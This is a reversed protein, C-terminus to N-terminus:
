WAFPVVVQLNAVPPLSRRLGAVPNGAGNPGLFGFVEGRAVSFSVDTVAARAGFVKSLHSVEIAAPTAAGDTV